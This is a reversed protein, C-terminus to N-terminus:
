RFDMEEYSEDGDDSENDEDEDGTDLPSFVDEGATRGSFKKGDDQKQLSDIIIGVGIKMPKERNPYYWVYAFIAAQAFCGAYIKSKTESPELAELNEDFVQPRNEAHSTMKVVWHGKYGEKDKNKKGDGDKIPNELEDPWNAEDTGWEAIKANRIISKLKRRKTVGGKKEPITWGLMEEDKPFLATVSFKEKDGPKPAQPKDLHPYSVRFTPTRMQCARKQEKTMRKKAM